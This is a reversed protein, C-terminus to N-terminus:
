HEPFTLQGGFFGVMGILVVEAAFLGVFLYSMANLEGTLVTPNAVHILVIIAGVVTVVIGGILKFMLKFNKGLGYYLWWSQMGTLVAFPATLTGLVILHFATREFYFPGQDGGLLLHLLVFLFGALILGLPFHVAFPHSHRKVFPVKAYLWSLPWPAMAVHEDVAEEEILSGVIPFGDFVKQDHPAASMSATLDQGAEHKLMHKGNKWKKSNGVDYVKGEFAIYTPKGDQGNFEALEKRTMGKM